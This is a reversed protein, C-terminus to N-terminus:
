PHFFIGAPIPYAHVRTSRIQHPLSKDAHNAMFSSRQNNLLNYCNCYFKSHIHIHIALFILIHLYSESGSDKLVFHDRPKLYFCVSLHSRVEKIILLNCFPCIGISSQVDRFLPCPPYSKLVLSKETSSTTIKLLFLCKSSVSNKEGSKMSTAYKFRMCKHTKCFYQLLFFSYANM